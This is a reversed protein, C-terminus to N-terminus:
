PVRIDSIEIQWIKEHFVAWVHVELDSRGEESSWLPMDISLQIRRPSSEHLHIISLEEEYRVPPYVFTAPYEDLVRFVETPDSRDDLVEGLNEVERDCLNEQIRRLQDILQAFQPEIIKPERVWEIGSAIRRAIWGIPLDHLDTLSPDIEIMESLAVVMADKVSVSEDDTHFQWAGDDLDHSVYLVPRGERIVQTTTFV